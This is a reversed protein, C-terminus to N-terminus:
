PKDKPLYDCFIDAVLAKGRGEHLLFYQQKPREFPMANRLAYANYGILSGNVIVRGFDSAQHFHGMCTLDAHKSQDLRSVAKLIPISIGGVGGGFSVTDGHMFRVTQDGLQVYVMAGEAIHWTIRKENRWHKALLHYLMWELNTEAATNTRPKPTNRGHNGFVAPIVIQKFEGHDLLYQIIGNVVEMAFLIAKLPSLYNSERNDDHLYGTILDGLIGLCLSDIKVLHRQAKTLLVVRQAFQESRKKAIQPNYQNHHGPVDEPDVREELHCDSLLAVAWASGGAQTYVPIKHSPTTKVSEYVRIRQRLSEVEARLHEMDDLDDSAQSWRNTAM